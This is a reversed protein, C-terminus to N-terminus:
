HNRLSMSHINKQHHKINQLPHFHFSHKIHLTLKYYTISSSKHNGTELTIYNQSINTLSLFPTSTFTHSRSFHSLIQVAFDTLGNDLDMIGGKILVDKKYNKLYNTAINIENCRAKTFGGLFLRPINVGVHNM